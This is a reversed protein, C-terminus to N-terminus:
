THAPSVARSKSTEPSSEVCLITFYRKVGLAAPSRRTRVGTPGSRPSRASGGDRDLSGERERERIREEDRERGRDKDRDIEEERDRERDREGDGERDRGKEKSKSSDRASKDRMRDNRGNVNEGEKLKESYREKAKETPMDKDRSKESDEFNDKVSDCAAEERVGKVKVAGRELSGERYREKEREGEKSKVRDKRDQRDKSASGKRELSSDRKRERSKEAGNLGRLDRKGGRSTSAAIGDAAIVELIPNSVMRQIMTRPTRASLGSQASDTRRASSNIKRLQSNPRSNTSTNTNPHASLSTVHNASAVAMKTQRSSTDMEDLIIYDHHHL